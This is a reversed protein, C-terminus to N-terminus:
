ATALVQRRARDVHVRNDDPHTLQQLAAEAAQHMHLGIQRGVEPWRDAVRGLKLQDDEVEGDIRAVCHRGAASQADHRAVHMLGRCTPRICEIWAVVHPDGHGIGADAHQGIRPARTSGKKVM